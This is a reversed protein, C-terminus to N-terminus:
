RSIRTAIWAITLTVALGAFAWRVGLPENLARNCIVNFLPLEIVLLILIRWLSSIRPKGISLAELALAFTIALTLAVFTKDRPEIRLAGMHSNLVVAHSGTAARTTALVAICHM